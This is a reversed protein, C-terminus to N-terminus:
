VVPSTKLKVIHNLGKIGNDKKIPQYKKNKTRLIVASKFM